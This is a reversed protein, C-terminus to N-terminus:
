ITLLVFLIFSFFNSARCWKFLSDNQGRFVPEVACKCQFYFHSGRGTVTRSMLIKLTKGKEISNPVKFFYRQLPSLHNLYSHWFLWFQCNQMIHWKDFLWVTLSHIINMIEIALVQSWHTTHAHLYRWLNDIQLCFQIIQILDFNIQNKTIQCSDM